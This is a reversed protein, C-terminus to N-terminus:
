SARAATLFADFADTGYQLYTLYGGERAHILISAQYFDAMAKDYLTLQGPPLYGEAGRVEECLATGLQYAAAATVGPAEIDDVTTTFVSRDGNLALDGESREDALWASMPSITVPYAGYAVQGCWLTAGAVTATSTTQPIPAGPTAAAPTTAPAAAPTTTTLGWEVLATNGNSAGSYTVPNTSTLSVSYSKGTVPSYATVVPTNGDATAAQYVNLAFPCSTDPGAYV